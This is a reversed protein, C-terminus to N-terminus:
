IIDRTQWLGRYTPPQAGNTPRKVLGSIIPQDHAQALSKQAYQMWPIANGLKDKKGGDWQQSSRVSYKRGENYYNDTGCLRTARRLAGLVGCTRWFNTRPLPCRRSNCCRLCWGIGPRLATRLQPHGHSHLSLVKKMKKKRQQRENM